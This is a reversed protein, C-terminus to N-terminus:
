SERSRWRSELHELYWAPFGYERGPKVIHDVYDDFPPAATGGWSIYVLAPVLGGTKGTAPDIPEVAVAEALYSSVWSEGYLRQLEDHTAHVLIGYVSARDSPVITALPAFRIDFGWLRCVTVDTPTLGARQLVARDIFSGYFFVAVKRTSM